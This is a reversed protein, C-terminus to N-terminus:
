RMWRQYWLNFMMVSWIIRSYDSVGEQHRKWMEELMPRDFCTQCESSFLIEEAASKLEKRFYHVLPVGFGQKKRRVIEAPLMPAFAKKLIYKATRGRLKMKEDIRCAFEAFEHDLYPLRVELGFAMSARDEKPLLCNPLYEQLDCALLNNLQNNEVFYKKMEAFDLVSCAAEQPTRFLYSLLMPYLAWDPLEKQLFCRLKNWQDTKGLRGLGAAAKDLLWRAAAPLHNLRKLIQFQHYRPYGGFLEDGGTGSLCVTVQRSAASCVLWTPIMSPDAFPEDYHVPLQEMLEQVHRATFEIEYHETGFHSSVLRAYRSENFDPRDFRISFTKLQRVYPRMLGVLISSDLGGSLFAGLPVDSIMQMRVGAQLKERLQEVIEEETRWSGRAFPIQWYRELRELRCQDLDFVLYSAPPLPSIGEFITRGTPMYGFYWYHNLSAGDLRKDAGAAPLIKIESGFAFRGGELWYYLPKIGFRDRALFFKRNRRDWICFAFQGNLRSLLDQGWQEYGHVLVETDSRSLFRHGFAELEKKLLEFNFIEGNCIVAIQGDESYMPQRGRESLDLISLRKHGLSVGEGVFFGEQNPGRHSLLATMDEIRKRDEWNLGAIGCM